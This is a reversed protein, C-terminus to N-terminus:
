DAPTPSNGRLSGAARLRYVSVPEDFRGTTEFELTMGIRRAVRGSALNEPSIRAVVSPAGIRTCAEECIALAGEGAFGRGWVGPSLWWGIEFEEPSLGATGEGLYNLLIVGVLEDTEQEVAIRWGFGHARWHEVM